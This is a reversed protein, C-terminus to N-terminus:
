KPSTDKSLPFAGIRRRIAILQHFDARIDTHMGSNLWDIILGFCLCKYYRILIKRDEESFFDELPLLEVYTTVVHECIHWLYNEYMERNSSNHIHMVATKNALIFEVAADFSDEISDFQQYEQIIRDAEQNVIEEIMSPLDEYHYYFTNRNIGCDEVIDKVTIKNIPRENLLKILSNRIAAKTFSVM